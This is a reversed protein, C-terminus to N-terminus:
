LSPPKPMTPGAPVTPTTPVTPTIPKTPAAGPLSLIDSKAPTTKTTTATVTDVVDAKPTAGRALVDGKDITGTFTFGVTGSESLSIDSFLQNHILDEKGLVEAQYALANFNRATGALKLSVEKGDQSLSFSTYRVGLTTNAALHDFVVTPAIRSELLTRGIRIRDSLRVLDRVAEKNDTKQLTLVERTKTDRENTLYFKYGFVIGSLAISSLLLVVGAYM